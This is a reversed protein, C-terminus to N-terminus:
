LPVVRGQIDQTPNKIEFVMPDISPYVVEDITSGLVDYSFKSYGLGEGSLNNVTVDQVTQVGEVKDLLISIDKVLIPENIQWKDIDFFNTLSEVCKTIVESNNFNPLVIIDFLVEINVIYADKINISDNIMRYESLYTQLNRKLLLSATRLNKNIDYSLIYLDLVTPLEGAQYDGIKCPEAHAKAIVGLNSPMSLSRILYDQTTVTRLQNQFNGLSNLRIDEITDGDMGGDAALVNNSSISNFINNALATNSLDPNIFVINTDDVITLSGAEVNAAAGGGTLYRVSLTTNYPAIGYTNTFVFNVPSFATTLKTKEFPLGLGVNDPNPIIEETTSRTSGAGFQLQLNNENLFRSAFRRQVTKLELIYPVETDINYNPDNTNTNRISNFVNEQALNPVEYWVNGNSDIVDLVGIINGAKLDRTDFKKSANFVFNQSRVTASIAKRKKKLLFYTPNVGSIQYISEETLDLSSSSQFDVADEIIFNMSSDVNSSIQTNEPIVVAYDYDPVYDGGVQIAPVQQFFDIMSSAVTTVKPVYGLSYALSYLNTTQRAKQIFTEQIQNDLYFSLVDGVYAAMEMFLMGTSTETFDNYTDPFYTKSYQILSNRLTNFDRDIYRIDRELRAM